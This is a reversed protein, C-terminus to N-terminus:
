TRHLASTSDAIGQLVLETFSGTSAALEEAVRQVGARGVRGGLATIWGDQASLFLCLCWMRAWSFPEKGMRRRCSM